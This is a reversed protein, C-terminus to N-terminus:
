YAAPPLDCRGNLDGYKGALRTGVSSNTATRCCYNLGCDAWTGAQYYIDLHPDALHAITITKRTKNMSPMNPNIVTSYLNNIFNNDAIASPKDKLIANVADEM